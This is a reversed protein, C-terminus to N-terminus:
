ERGKQLQEFNFTVSSKTEKVNGIKYVSGDATRLVVSNKNTLPQDISKTTLSLKGISDSKVQDFTFDSLIAMEMGPQRLMLVARPTVDANYAIILDAKIKEKAAKVKERKSRPEMKVVTGTKLNLGETEFELTVSAAMVETWLVTFLAFVIFVSVFFRQKNAKSNETILGTIPTARKLSFQNGIKRM